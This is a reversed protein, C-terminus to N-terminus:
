QSTMPNIDVTRNKLDVKAHYVAHPDGYHKFTFEYVNASAWIESIESATIDYGDQQYLETEMVKALAAQQSANRDVEPALSPNTPYSSGNYKMLRFAGNSWVMFDQWGNSTSDTLLVPPKVVSMQSIINGTQDFIAATCGGSGCFYSDQILVFHEAVGDNNLDASGTLYRINDQELSLGEPALISDDVWQAIISANVTQNASARSNSDVSKTASCGILLLSSFLCIKGLERNFM